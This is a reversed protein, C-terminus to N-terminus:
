MAPPWYAIRSHLMRRLVEPDLRTQLRQATLLLKQPSGDPKPQRRLKSRTSLWLELGREEGRCGRVGDALVGEERELAERECASLRRMVLSQRKGNWAGQLHRASPTTADKTSGARSSTGPPRGQCANQSEPLLFCIAEDSEKARTSGRVSAEAQRCSPGESAGRRRRKGRGGREDGTAKKIRLGEKWM